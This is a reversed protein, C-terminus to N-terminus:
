PVHIGITYSHFGMSSSRSRCPAPGVSCLHVGGRLCEAHHDRLTCACKPSKIHIRVEPAQRARACRTCVIHACGIAHPQHTCAIVKHVQRLVDKTREIHVDIYERYDPINKASNIQMGGVLEGTGGMFPVHFGSYLKEHMWQM